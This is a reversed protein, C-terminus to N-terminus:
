KADNSARDYDGQTPYDKLWDRLKDMPTLFLAALNEVYYETPAAPHSRSPVINKTWQFQRAIRESEERPILGELRPMDVESEHEVHHHVVDMLTDLLPEFKPDTPTMDQVQALYVKMGQHQETDTKVLNVGEEGLWQEMAPYLTLEESIAHRALTWTLLNRWRVKEADDKASKLNEAYADISKHDAGIAESITEPM